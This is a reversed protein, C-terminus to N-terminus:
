PPSVGGLKELSIDMYPYDEVPARRDLMKFFAAPFKSIPYRANELLPTAESQDKMSVYELNDYLRDYMATVYKEQLEPLVNVIKKIRSILHHRKDSKMLTHDFFSELSWFDKSVSGIIVAILIFRDFTPDLTASIITVVSSKTKNSLSLLTSIDVSSLLDLM